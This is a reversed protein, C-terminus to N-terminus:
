AARRIDMIVIDGSDGHDHEFARTMFVKARVVEEGFLCEFVFTNVPQDGAIFRHFHRRLDGINQCPFIDRFFDKGVVTSEAEYLGYGARARSYLITGDNSLEYLGFPEVSPERGAQVDETSMQYGFLSASNGTVCDVRNGTM